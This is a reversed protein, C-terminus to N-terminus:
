IKGPFVIYPYMYKARDKLEYIARFEGDKDYMKYLGPLNESLFLKRPIRNGNILLHNAEGESAKLCPHDYVSDAPILKEAIKGEGALAVAEDLTVSEEIGFIGVRTRCLDGMCAGTGLKEGIDFCLSRIYTGKSCEVLLHARKVFGNEEVTDKIDLRSITIEKAEREVTMGKRALDYLREGDKWKASFMPPVQMITGRFHLLANELESRTVFSPMSSIVNGTIDYSDTKTGIILEAVYEKTSDTLKGCVKTANGFCVPLVGTANPDLTGTHGTKERGCAHKLIGIVKSSTLGKPKNVILIGNM